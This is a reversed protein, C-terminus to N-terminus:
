SNIHFQCFYALFVSKLLVLIVSVFPTVFMFMLLFQLCAKLDFSPFAESPCGEYLPFM